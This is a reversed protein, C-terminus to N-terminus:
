RRSPLARGDVATESAQWRASVEELTGEPCDHVPVVQPGPDDPVDRHQWKLAYCKHLNENTRGAECSRLAWESWHKPCRVVRYRPDKKLPSDLWDVCMARQETRGCVQCVNWHEYQQYM